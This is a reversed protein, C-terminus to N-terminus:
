LGARGLQGPLVATLQLQEGPHFGSGLHCCGPHQQQVALEGGRVAPEGPEGRRAVHATRDVRRERKRGAAVRLLREAPGRDNFVEGLLAVGSLLLQLPEGHGCITGLLGRLGFHGPQALHNYRQHALLLPDLTQQSLVLRLRRDDPVVDRGAHALHSVLDVAPEAREEGDAAIPGAAVALM